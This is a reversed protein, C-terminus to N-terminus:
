ATKYGCDLYSDLSFKRSPSNKEYLFTDMQSKNIKTKMKVASSYLQAMKLFSIYQNSERIGQM